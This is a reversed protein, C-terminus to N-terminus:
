NKRKFYAYSNGGKIIIKYIFLVGGGIHHRPPTLFVFKM